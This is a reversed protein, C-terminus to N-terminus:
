GEPCLLEDAMIRWTQYRDLGYTSEIHQYLEANRPDTGPIREACWMHGADVLNRRDSDPVYNAREINALYQEEADTFSKSETAPSPPMSTPSGINADPVGDADGCATLTAALGVALMAFASRIRANARM